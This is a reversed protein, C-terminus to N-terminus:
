WPTAVGNVYHWFNGSETPATESYFYKTANTFTDSNDYIVLDNWEAETGTYYISTLSCGQFANFGISHVSDPIIISTLRCGQFAYDGIYEVKDSITVSQLSECYRFLGDNIRTVGNGITASTLRNCNNFAYQSIFYVNDPITISTIWMCRGFANANISTLSNPMTISTISSCGYFAYLPISTIGNPIVLDGTIEAGDIYLKYDNSERRDMLGSYSDAACWDAFTGEYHIEKISCGNFAGSNIKKISSPLTVSTISSCGYFAYSPISTTGNPIVLNGTIEAGGIYLKKNSGWYMLNEHEKITLWNALSGSYKIETLSSCGGFAWYQIEINKNMITVSSLSSCSVFAYNEIKEISDPLIISTISTCNAFSHDAIATVPKDNYESPFILENDTATGIGTVSYSENDSNLELVLGETPFSTDRKGCECYHTVTDYIHAGFDGKQSNNSFECGVTCEHWHYSEDNQWETSWQHGLAAIVTDTRNITVNGNTDSFCGHCGICEWYEINGATKCTPAAASVLSLDHIHGDTAQPIAIDTNGVNTLTYQVSTGDMNSTFLISAIEDIGTLPNKNFTVSVDTLVGGFTETKDLSACTYKGDSYTFSNYDDKLSSYVTLVKQYNAFNTEFDQKTISDKVWTATAGEKLYRYYRLSEYSFIVENNAMKAGYMNAGGLKVENDGMSITLNDATALNTFCKSWSEATVNSKDDGCAALGIMCGLVCILSLLTTLIKKKM